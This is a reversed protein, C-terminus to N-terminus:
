CYVRGHAVLAHPAIVNNYFPPYQRYGDKVTEAAIVAFADDPRVPSDLGIAWIDGSALTISIIFVAGALIVRAMSTVQKQVAREKGLMVTSYRNTIENSIEWKLRRATGCPLETKIAM